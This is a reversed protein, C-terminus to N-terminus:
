CCCCGKKQNKLEATAVWGHVCVTHDENSSVLVFISGVHQHYLSSVLYIFFSEPVPWGVAPHHIEPFM